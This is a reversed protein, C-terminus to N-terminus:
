EFSAEKKQFQECTKCIKQEPAKEPEYWGREQMAKFVEFQMDHEESLIGMLVDKRKETACEGAYHNYDETIHKQSTLVDTIKAQDNFCDM